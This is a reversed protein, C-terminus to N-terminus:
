LGLVVKTCCCAVAPVQCRGNSRVGVEAHLFAAKSNLNTMNFPGEGELPEDPEKTRM